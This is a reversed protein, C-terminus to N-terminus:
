SRWFDARAVFSAATLRVLRYGEDQFRYGSRFRKWGGGPVTATAIGGFRYAFSNCVRTGANWSEATAIPAWRGHSRPLFISDTVARGDVWIRWTSPRGDVEILAVRHREGASVSRLVEVYQPARGRRAIEYYLSSHDGFGSLGVQLWEDSGGAGEGPGGVGVWAGVHGNAVEPPALQTITASVGHSRAAGAFGAYTYARKSCAAPPTGSMAAPVAALALALVAAVIPASLRM